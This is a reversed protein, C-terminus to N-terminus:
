KAGTKRSPAKAVANRKSPAKSKAPRKRKAFELFPERDVVKENEDDEGWGYIEARSDPQEPVPSWVDSQSSKKRSVFNVLTPVPFQKATLDIIADLYVSSEADFLTTTERLHLLREEFVRAADQASRARAIIQFAADGPGSELLSFAGLWLGMQNAKSGQKKAAM